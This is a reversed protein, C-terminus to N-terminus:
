DYIASDPAALPRLGYHRIQIRQEVEHDIDDIFMLFDDVLKRPSPNMATKRAGM